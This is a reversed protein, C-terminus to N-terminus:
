RQLDINIGLINVIELDKDEILRNAVEEDSGNGLSSLPQVTVVDALVIVSQFVMEAQDELHRITPFRVMLCQDAWIVAVASDPIQKSADPEGSPDAPDSISPQHLAVVHRTALRSDLPRKTSNKPRTKINKKKKLLFFSFM